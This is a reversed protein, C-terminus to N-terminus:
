VGAPRARGDGSERVGLSTRTASLEEELMAVRKRLGIIELEKAGIISVLDGTTFNVSSDNRTDM